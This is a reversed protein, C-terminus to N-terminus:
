SVSSLLSAPDSAPLDCLLHFLMIGGLSNNKAFASKDRALFKGNYYSNNLLNDFSSFLEDADCYYNWISSQDTPRGYCPIGLFLQSSKFGLKLFYEVSKEASSYTSHFGNKDFLDYAMINVRDLSSFAFDPFSIDHPYFAASLEVSPASLKLHQILKGFNDWETQNKPFEWDFDVADIKYENLFTLINSSLTSIKEDSNISNGATNNKILTGQPAISVWIKCNKSEPLARVAELASKLNKGPVIEGNENWKASGSIFIVDSLLKFSSSYKSIDYSKDFVPLYASTKLPIKDSFSSILNLEGIEVAGQSSDFSITICDSVVSAFSCIRNKGIESQSYIKSFNGNKDKVSVSISLVNDSIGRLEVGCLSRVESFRLELEYPLDTISYVTYDDGDTLVNPITTDQYSSQSSSEQLSSEELFSEEIQSSSSDSKSDLFEESSSPKTNGCASFLSFLVSLILFLALNRM